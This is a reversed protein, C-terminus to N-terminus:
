NIEGITKELDKVYIDMMQKLINQKQNKGKIVMKSGANDMSVTINQIAYIFKLEDDLDMSKVDMGDFNMFATFGSKGFQNAFQPIVLKSNTSKGSSILVEKESIVSKMGFVDSGAPFFSKMMESVEKGKNGLQMYINAEPVLSGDRMMDGVMVLGLKGGFLNTLPKDGLTSSFLQMQMNSSTLEKKFEPAFDDLFTEMKQMDFNMAIGLRANGKGLKSIISAAADEKMFMRNMLESSFLNQSEIVAQGTEFSISSQLYSDNVLAEFEKKKTASLNSLSTNSSAYLNQLSVGMTIDGKKALIQDVKGESLDNEAKTFAELLAKKGDYKGKRTIVIAINEKIGVSLDNEQTYKMEGEKEMMLGFSSIKSALSDANNVRMFAILNAPTGDKEFPGEMAFHISQNLDVAKEFQSMESKLLVSVKPINKYDAKELIQKIDIKGFLVVNKNDKMYASLYEASTRNKVDKSCSVITFILVVNLLLLIKKM